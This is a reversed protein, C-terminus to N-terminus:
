QVSRAPSIDVGYVTRAADPSVFGNLVDKRVLEPDRERPPGVGGGGSSRKVVIDGTKVEALRHPKM